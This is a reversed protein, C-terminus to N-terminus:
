YCEGWSDDPCIGSILIFAAMGFPLLSRVVRHRGFFSPVKGILDNVMLAAPFRPYEKQWFYGKKNEEEKHEQDQTVEQTVGGEANRVAKFLLYIGWVVFFLVTFSEGGLCTVCYTM